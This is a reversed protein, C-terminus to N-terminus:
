SLWIVYRRLNHFMKRYAAFWNYGHCRVTGLYRICHLVSPNYVVCPGGKLSLKWLLLWVGLPCIPLILAIVVVRPWGKLEGLVQCPAAPLARTVRSYAREGLHWQLQGCFPNRLSPHDFQEVRNSGAYRRMSPLRVPPAAASAGNQCAQQPVLSQSSLWRWASGQLRLLLSAVCVSGGDTVIHRMQRAQRSFSCHCCCVGRSATVTQGPEQNSGPQGRACIGNTLELVQAM